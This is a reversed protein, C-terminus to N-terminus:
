VRQDRLAKAYKPRLTCCGTAPDTSGYTARYPRPLRAILDPPLTVGPDAQLESQVEGPLSAFWELDDTM